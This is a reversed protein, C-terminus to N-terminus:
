HRSQLLELAFDGALNWRFSKELVPFDVIRWKEEVQFSPIFLISFLRIFHWGLRIHLSYDEKEQEETKAKLIVMGSLELLYLLMM